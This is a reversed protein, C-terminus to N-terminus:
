GTAPEREAEEDGGSEGQLQPSRSLAVAGAAMVLGSVVALVVFVGGRAQEDFVLLGWVIAVFPDLLTVGPQAAELRGANYANQLLWMSAAGTVVSAYLQWATLAGIVGSAAFENTMGKTL